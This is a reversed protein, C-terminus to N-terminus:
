PFNAQAACLNLQGKDRGAIFGGNHLENVLLAVCSVFGGHNNASNKCESIRDSITCGDILLINAVTSDCDEIIVTDSLNSTPCIDIDDPIGDGDSDAPSDLSILEGVSVQYLGTGNDVHEVKVFLTEGEMVPVPIGLYGAKTAFEELTGSTIVTTGDAALVTLMPDMGAAIGVVRVALETVGVPVSFSFVDIDGSFDIKGMIPDSNDATIATATSLSDGHDDQLVGVIEIQFREFREFDESVPEDPPTFFEMGPPPASLELGTVTKYAKGALGNAHVEISYFGSQNYNIAAAYKGDGAISDVGSGDDLLSVVSTSGDPFTVTASVTACAIPLGKNLTATIVFPAPYEIVQEGNYTDSTLVFTDGSPTATAQYSFIVEGAIGAGELNWLGPVPDAVSFVIITEGGSEQVATQLVRTGDPAVLEFVADAQTGSYTVAVKLDLLSSDIQIPISRGTPPASWSGGGGIGATTTAAAFADQLAQNVAAFTTPSNYLKGKTMSAMQGLTSTDADSGYSFTFIPIQASQYAPVPALADDGSIGDSLLFVIKTDEGSNQALLANLAAQAAAGIATGGGASITGIQTKIVDKASQDAVETIPTVTSPTSNFAIVGLKTTGEQVADVLLKAANKANEVKTGLMSGSKDIVLILTVEDTMWIIDLDDHSGSPSIVTRSSDFDPVASEIPAVASLEPYYVRGLGFFDAIKEFLGLDRALTEWGSEEYKRHQATNETNEFDSFGTDATGGQNAISFNLWRSDILAGNSSANWQSNMISPTVPDDDQCPSASGDCTTNAKAYEDKLGYAYHGWEHALTYGHGIEDDLLNYGDFDDYTSIHDGSSRIGNLDAHPHGSPDWLIDATDDKTNSRFIRIKRIRHAGETSEYVGEAFHKLIREIKDQDASGPDVGQTNGDNDGQPNSHLSVVVDFLKPSTSTAQVVQESFMDFSQVAEPETDPVPGSFWHQASLAPAAATSAGILIGMLAGLLHRKFPQNRVLRSKSKM